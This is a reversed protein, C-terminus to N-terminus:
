GKSRVTRDGTLGGAALFTRMEPWSGGLWDFEGSFRPRLDGLIAASVGAARPGEAVALAFARVVVLPRVDAARLHGEVDPWIRELERVVAEVKGSRCDVVARALAGVARGAGRDGLRADAEACWEAARELEGALALCLALQAASPGGLGRELPGSENDILLAIAGALDGQRLRVSALNHRAVCRLASVGRRTWPTYIRAARDLEGRALASLGEESAPKFRRFSARAMVVTVLAVAAFLALGGGAVKLANLETCAVILVISSMLFFMALGLVAEGGGRAQRLEDPRPLPAGAMGAIM